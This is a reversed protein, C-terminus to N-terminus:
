AALSQCRTFLCSPWRRCPAVAGLSRPRACRRPSWSGSRRAYARGPESAGSHSPPLDPLPSAPAPLTNPCAGALARIRDQLSRVRAEIATAAKREAETYTRLEQGLLQAQQSM